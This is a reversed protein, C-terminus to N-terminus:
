AAVEVPEADFVVDGLALLHRGVQRLAEDRSGAHFRMPTKGKVSVMAEWAPPNESIKLVSVSTLGFTNGM